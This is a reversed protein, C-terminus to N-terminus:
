IIEFKNNYFEHVIYINQFSMIYLIYLAYVILFECEIKFYELELCNKVIYALKDDSINIQILELSTLLTLNSLFTVDNLFIKGLALHELTRPLYQIWGHDYTECSTYQITLKQINKFRSIM